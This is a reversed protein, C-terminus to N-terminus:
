PVLAFLPVDLGLEALVFLVGVVVTLVLGVRIAIAVAIRVLIVFAILGVVALLALIPTELQLPLAPAVTGALSLLWTATM